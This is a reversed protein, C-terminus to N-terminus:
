LRGEKRKQVLYDTFTEGCDDSLRENGGSRIGGIHGEFLDALTQPEGGKGNPSAQGNGPEEESRRPQVSVSLEDGPHVGLEALAEGPITLSGNEEVKATVQISAM